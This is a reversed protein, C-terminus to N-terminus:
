KKGADAEDDATAPSEVVTTSTDENVRRTLDALSDHLASDDYEGQTRDVRNFAGSVGEAHEVTEDNKKAM